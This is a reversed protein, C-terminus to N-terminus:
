WYTAVMDYGVALLAADAILHSVWVGYLSRSQDYLWAWVGGGIAVALAFPIALTWFHDPFYVGLVIIHHAMFGLSAIVLAPWLRLYRRLQGFVFWRWYYEELFAHAVSIFAALLFYRVPTACGLEVLKQWAAAPAASSRILDRLGGYYLGFVGLAVLVGFGVARGFGRGPFPAWGLQSRHVCWMYVVPFGFQIVKGLAVAAQVAPNQGDGSGVLQVFYLWTMVTPFVLAFLVAVLDRQV